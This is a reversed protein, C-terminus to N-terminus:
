QDGPGAEVTHSHVSPMPEPAHQAFDLQQRLIEAEQWDAEDASQEAEGVVGGRASREAEKQAGEEALKDMKEQVEEVTPMPEAKGYEEEISKIVQAPDNSVHHDWAIAGVGGGAVLLGAVGAAIWRTKASIRKKGEVTEGESM